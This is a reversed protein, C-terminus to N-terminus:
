NICVSLCVHLRAYVYQLRVHVCICRCVCIYVYLTYIICARSTSFRDGGKDLIDAVHSQNSEHLCRVVQKYDDVSRRRLMDLLVENKRDNRKKSKITELQRGNIVQASYLRGLLDSCDM